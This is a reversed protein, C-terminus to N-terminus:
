EAPHEKDDCRLSLPLFIVRFAPDRTASPGYVDILKARIGDEIAIRDHERRAWSRPFDTAWYQDLEVKETAIADAYLEALVLPKTEDLTLGRAQLEEVYRTVGRYEHTSFSCDRPRPRYVIDQPRLHAELSPVVMVVQRIGKGGVHM